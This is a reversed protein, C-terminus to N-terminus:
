YTEIGAAVAVMMCAIIMLWLHLPNNTTVTMGLAAFFVVAAGVAFLVKFAVCWDFDEFVKKLILWISM